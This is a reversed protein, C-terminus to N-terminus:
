LRTVSLTLVGATEGPQFPSDSPLCTTPLALESAEGPLRVWAGEPPPVVARVVLSYRLGLVGLTPAM